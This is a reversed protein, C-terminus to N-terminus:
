PVPASACSRLRSRGTRFSKGVCGPGEAAAHHWPPQQARTAGTVIHPVRKLPASGCGPAWHRVRPEGGQWREMRGDPGLDPARDLAGPRPGHLGARQRHQSRVHRARRDLHLSRGIGRVAVEGRVERHPEGTGVPHSRERDGRGQGVCSARSDASSRADVGTAVTSTAGGPNRLMRRASRASSDVTASIRASGSPQPRTAGRPRRETLTSNTDALGVPGSCM